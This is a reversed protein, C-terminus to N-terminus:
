CKDELVKIEHRDKNMQATTPRVAKLKDQIEKLQQRLEKEQECLVM